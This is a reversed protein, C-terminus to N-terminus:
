LVSEQYDKVLKAFFDAADIEIQKANDKLKELNYELLSQNQFRWAIQEERNCCDLTKVLKKLSKFLQMYREVPDSINDFSYDFWETYLKYGLKQLTRNSGRQGYIIFPQHAVIPYFSKESLERSTGQNDDVLTENVIQFLTQQHLTINFNEEGDLTKPLSKIWKQQSKKTRDRFPILDNDEDYLKENHSILSRHSIESTDLYYAMSSRYLRALNNLSLLYKNEFLRKVQKKSKPITNTLLQDQIENQAFCRCFCHILPKNKQRTYYELNQMENLNMTVYIVKSHPINISEIAGYIDDYLPGDGYITSFGELSSDLVLFKSGNKIQKKLKKPLTFFETNNDLNEPCFEAIVFYKKLNNPIFKKINSTSNEPILKFVPQNKM